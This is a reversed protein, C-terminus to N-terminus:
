KYFFHKNKLVLVVNRENLYKINKKMELVTAKHWNGNPLEREYGKRGMNNNLDM